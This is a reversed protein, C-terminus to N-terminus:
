DLFLAKALFKLLFNGLLKIYFCFQDVLNRCHKGGISQCFCVQKNKKKVEQLEGDFEKKQAALKDLLEQRDKVRTKEADALQKQLDSLLDRGAASLSSSSKDAAATASTLDAAASNRRFPAPTGPKVTGAGAAPSGGFKEFKSRFDSMKANAQTGSKDDGAASVAPTKQVLSTMCCVKFHKRETYDNHNPLQNKCSYVIYYLM